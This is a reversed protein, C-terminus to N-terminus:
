QQPIFIADNSQLCGKRAQLLVKSDETNFGSSFLYPTPDCRRYLETHQLSQQCLHHGGEASFLAKLVQPFTSPVQHQFNRPKNLKGMACHLIQVKAEESQLDELQSSSTSCLLNEKVRTQIDTQKCKCLEWMLLSIELYSPTELLSTIPVAAKYSAALLPDSILPKLIVTYHPVLFGPYKNEFWRKICLFFIVMCLNAEHLTRQGIQYLFTELILCIIKCTCHSHLQHQTLNWLETIHSRVTDLCGSFTLTETPSSSSLSWDAAFHSHVLFCPLRQRSRFALKFHM